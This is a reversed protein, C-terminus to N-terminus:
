RSVVSRAAFNGLLPRTIAVLRVAATLVLLAGLSWPFQSVQSLHPLAGTPKPPSM